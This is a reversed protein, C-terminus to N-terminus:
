NKPQASSTGTKADDVVDPEFGWRRLENIEERTMQPKPPPPLEFTKWDPRDVRIENPAGWRQGFMQANADFTPRDRAGQEMAALAGQRFLSDKAFHEAFRPNTKIYADLSKKDTIGAAFIAARGSNFVNVIRPLRERDEKTRGQVINNIVTLLESSVGVKKRREAFYGVDVSGRVSNIAIQLVAFDLHEGDTAARQEKASTKSVDLVMATLENTTLVVTAAIGVAPAAKALKLAADLAMGGACNTVFESPDNTLTLCGKTTDSIVASAGILATQRAMDLGETKKQKDKVERLSPKPEHTEIAVALRHGVGSTGSM